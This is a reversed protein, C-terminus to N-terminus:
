NWQDSDYLAYEGFGDLVNGVELSPKMNWVQKGDASFIELGGQCLGGGDGSVKLKYHANPDTLYSDTYNYNGDADTAVDVKFQYQPLIAPPTQCQNTDMTATWTWTGVPWCGGIDTPQAQGLQFTGTVKFTANCLIGLPQDRGTSADPGGGNPGSVGGLDCAAFGLLGVLLGLRLSGM